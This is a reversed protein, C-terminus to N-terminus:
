ILECALYITRSFLNTAGRSDRVWLRITYPLALTVCGSWEAVNNRPTWTLSTTAADSGGPVTLTGRQLVIDPPCGGGFDLCFPTLRWEFEVPNDPPVDADNIRGTMRIPTSLYYGPGSFPPNYTSGDLQPRTDIVLSVDPSCNAGCSAVAVEVSTSASARYGDTATLILVRTGTGSFTVTPNCGRSNSFSDSASTSSWVLLECSLLGPGPDSGENIDTAYGSVEVSSGPSFTSGHTPVSIVPVPPSNVGNILVTARGTAGGGDRVTVSVERGEPRYFRFVAVNGSVSLPTPRWEYTCASTLCEGDEVDAVTATVVFRRGVDVDRDPGLSVEPPNNFLVVPISRQTVTVGAIVISATIVHAGSPL